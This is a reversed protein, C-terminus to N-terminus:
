KGKRAKETRVQLKLFDALRGLNQVSLGGKGAMFRSLMAQDIDLQKCIAYRSLDSKDVALRIQDLFNRKVRAM